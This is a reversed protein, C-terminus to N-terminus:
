GPKLTKLTEPTTSAATHVQHLVLRTYNGNMGLSEVHWLGDNVQISQVSVLEPGSAFNKNYDQM